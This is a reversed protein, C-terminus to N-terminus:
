WLDPPESVEEELESTPTQGNGLWGLRIAQFCCVDLLLTFVVANVASATQVPYFGLEIAGRFVWSAIFTWVPTAVLLPVGAIKVERVWFEVLEGLPQGLSQRQSASRAIALTPLGLLVVAPSAILAAGALEGAQTLTEALGPPDSVWGREVLDLFLLTAVGGVGLGWLPQLALIDPFARIEQRFRIRVWSILPQSLFQVLVASLAAIALSLM